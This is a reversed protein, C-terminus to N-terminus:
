RNESPEDMYVSHLSIFAGASSGALYVKNPDIGYTAANARLFRVASRGDQLGRYVARTGHLPTNNIVNFGKRYDITATVYGKRAFSDCFAVMDDHNRDGLVFGGSHVFIIAPRNTHTDGQPTYIDMVLDGTTTSAENFYPFNIFPATGYTIDASKTSSSFITKTYRYDQSYLLSIQFLLVTIIIIQRTPNNM